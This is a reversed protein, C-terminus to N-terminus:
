CTVHQVELLQSSNHFHQNAGFVYSSCFSCKLLGIGHLESTPVRGSFLCLGQVNGFHFYDGLWGNEPAIDPKPLTIM